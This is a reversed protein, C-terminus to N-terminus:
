KSSKINKQIIEKYIIPYKTDLYDLLNYYELTNERLYNLYDKDIIIQEKSTNDYNNDCSIFILIFITFFFKKM